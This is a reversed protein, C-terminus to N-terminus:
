LDEDSVAGFPQRIAAAASSASSTAVGACADNM